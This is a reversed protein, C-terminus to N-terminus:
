KQPLWVFACLPQFCCSFSCGQKFQGAAEPIRSFAYRNRMCQSQPIFGLKSQAELSALKSMTIAKIHPLRCFGSRQEREEIMNSPQEASPHVEWIAYCKDVGDEQPCKQAPLVEGFPCFAELGRGREGTIISIRSRVHFVFVTPWACSCM